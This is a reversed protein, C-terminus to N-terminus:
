GLRSLSLPLHTVLVEELVMVAPKERGYTKMVLHRGTVLDIAKRVDSRKSAPLLENRLVYYREPNEPSQYSPASEECVATSSSPDTESPGSRSQLQLVSLGDEPLTNFRERMTPYSDKEIWEDDVCQLTIILKLNAVEIKNSRDPRLARQQGFATLRFGNVETGHKGYNVLM